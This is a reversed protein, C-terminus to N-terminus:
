QTRLAITPDIRPVLFGPNVAGVLLFSRILLGAGALLRVAVACEAIVLVSRARRITPGGATSPGGEKLAGGPDERSSRWAPLIGFVLGAVLSVMAAFALVGPDVGIEDLRPIGRAISASLARVGVSAAVSGLLGAALALMMNEVLLQRLLRGRGAGLAARISLERTRVAGRALLLNAVNACAILLVCGVAGLLIWLALQLHRGTIQVLLPV